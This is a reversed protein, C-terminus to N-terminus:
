NCLMIRLMTNKHTFVSHSTKGYTIVLFKSQLGFKTIIQKMLKGPTKVM